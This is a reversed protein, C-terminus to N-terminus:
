LSSIDWISVLGVLDGKQNGTTTIYIMDLRRGNDIAEKFIRRIDDITASTGAFDYSGDESYKTIYKNMKFLPMDEDISSANGDGVYDFLAAESFVGWVKKDDMVPVYSFSNRKMFSITPIIKDSMQRKYIDKYPIYIQSVDDMLNSCFREFREKFTDTLMVLPEPANNPNHYVVNRVSRFYQADERIKGDLYQELDLVGRDGYYTRAWSELKNYLEMFDEIKYM